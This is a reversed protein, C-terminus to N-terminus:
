EKFNKTMRIPVALKFLRWKLRDDMKLDDINGNFSIFIPLNETYRHNIIYYMKEYIVETEKNINLDDLFLYKCNAINDIFEITNKNEFSRYLEHVFEVMPYFVVGDLQNAIASLLYTKGKESDGYLILGKCFGESKINISKVVNDPFDTLKAEAYRKPIGFSITTSQKCVNLKSICDECFTYGKLTDSYPAENVNCKKCIPTNM